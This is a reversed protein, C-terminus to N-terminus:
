RGWLWCHLGSFRSFMDIQMGVGTAEADVTLLKRSLKVAGESEALRDAPDRRDADMYFAARGRHADVAATVLASSARRASPDDNVALHQETAWVPARLEVLKVGPVVVILHHEVAEVQDLKVAVDARSGRPCREDQGFSTCARPEILV